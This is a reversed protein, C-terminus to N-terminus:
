CGPNFNLADWEIKYSELRFIIDGSEDQLGLDRGFESTALNKTNLIVHAYYEYASKDGQSGNMAYLADIISDKLFTFFDAHHNGHLPTGEPVAYKSRILAEWEPSSWTDTGLGLTFGGDPMADNLLTFFHAHLFEHIFKASAQLKQQANGTTGLNCLSQPIVLTSSKKGGQPVQHQIADYDGVDITM